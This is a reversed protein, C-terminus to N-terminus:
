EIKRPKRMVFLRDFLGLNRGVLQNAKKKKREEKLNVGKSPQRPSIVYRSIIDLAFFAKPHRSRPSAAREGFDFTQREQFFIASCKRNARTGIAVFLPGGLGGAVSNM